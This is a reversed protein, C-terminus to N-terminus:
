IDYKKPDNRKDTNRCALGGTRRKKAPPQKIKIVKLQPEDLWYSDVPLGDKMEESQVCMRRCGNLHEAIAMVTGELPTYKDKVRDGLKITIKPM